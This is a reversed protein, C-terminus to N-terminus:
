QVLKRDAILKRGNRELVFRAFAMIPRDGLIRRLLMLLPANGATPYRLRHGKDTAAKYITQAVEVATGTLNGTSAKSINESILETYARYEPFKQLDTLDQSRSNFDTRISGPEIIRVKIGFPRLEFYLSESIGELAWKTGHYFSYLPFSLRGGISAINIITGSGQKRFSPLFANILELPGFVNTNFQRQIQEATATEMAGLLAYGANNVLVDVKGFESLILRATEEIQVKNTIDLAFLSVGPLQNLHQETEPTRMTAAIRWGRSSFIEVAARGIGTSTGTIVVTRQLM